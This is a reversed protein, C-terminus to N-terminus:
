LVNCKNATQIEVWFVRHYRPRTPIGSTTRPRTEQPGSANGTRSSPPKKKPRQAIIIMIMTTATTITHFGVLLPPVVTCSCYHAGLLKVHSPRTNHMEGDPQCSPEWYIYPKKQPDKVEADLVGPTKLGSAEDLCCIVHFLRSLDQVGVSEHHMLVEQSILFHNNSSSTFQMEFTAVADYDFRGRRLWKFRGEQTRSDSWITFFFEGRVTQSPDVTTFM